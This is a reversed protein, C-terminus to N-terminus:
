APEASLTPTLLRRLGFALFPLGALQLLHFLANHDFPLGAFQVRWSTAQVAGAGLSLGLAIALAVAGPRGSRALGLYVGLAFLLGAAEYVVFALFVLAYPALLVIGWVQPTTLRATLPPAPLEHDASLTIAM